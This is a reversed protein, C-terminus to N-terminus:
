DNTEFLISDINLYYEAHYKGREYFIWDNKNITKKTENYEIEIKTIILRDRDDDVGITGFVYSDSYILLTDYLNLRETNIIGDEAIEFNIIVSDKYNNAVYYDKIHEVDCSTLAVSLLVTIVLIIGIKSKFELM